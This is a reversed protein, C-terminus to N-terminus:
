RSTCCLAVFILCVYDLMNWMDSHKTVFALFGMFPGKDKKQLAVDLTYEAKAQRIEHFFFFINIICALFMPILSPLSSPLQFTGRAIQDPVTLADITLLVVMLSHLYKYKDFKKSVNFNWKFEIIAQM